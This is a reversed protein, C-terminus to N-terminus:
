KSVTSDPFSANGAHISGADADYAPITGLLRLWVAIQHNSVKEKTREKHAQSIVSSIYVQYVWCGVLMNQRM